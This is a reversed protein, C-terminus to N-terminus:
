LIGMDNQIKKYNNLFYKSTIYTDTEEYLTKNIGLEDDIEYILAMPYSLLIPSHTSIIFQSGSKTLNHMLVLMAMQKEPSLASEPEDLIYLGNDQFRNQMLSFFSEGHSQKHLSRKGYYNLIGPKNQELEDINTALNYFSEARLFFGNELKRTSRVVKLYKYLESHSNNTHFNFNRSGGEPNFGQSIALAEILTSKGSGNEGIIFTVNSSFDLTILHKISPVSFPYKTTDIRNTNKLSISMIFNKRMM